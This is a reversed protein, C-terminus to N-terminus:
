PLKGEISPCVTRVNRVRLYYVFLDKENNSAPLVLVLVTGASDDVFTLDFLLLM